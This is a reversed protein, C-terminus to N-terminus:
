YLYHDQMQKMEEPSINLNNIIYNQISGSMSEMEAIAAQIVEEQTDMLSSLYNLVTENNTYQKYDNMRNENRKKNMTKTLAYDYVIEEKTVGLAGLILASGFGTRDKGGRCHQILSVNKPDALLKLLKHYQNQSYSDRVYHLMAGQLSLAKNSDFTGEEVKRILDDIKKKDSKIDSSALAATEGDPACVYSTTDRIAKNPRSALEDANRYDVITKIGINELYIVDSPSLNYLDDSRYIHGWKVHRNDYTSYGGLDRMNYSGTLNVKRESICHEQDKYKIKFYVRRNPDPDPITVEKGSFEGLFNAHDGQEPLHTTYFLEFRQTESIDNQVIVLKNEERLVLKNERFM